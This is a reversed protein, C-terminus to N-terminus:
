LLRQRYPTEHLYLRILLMKALGKSFRGYTAKSPMPLNESAFLLDDEIFKVMEERTM